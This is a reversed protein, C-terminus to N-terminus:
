KCDEGKYGIFAIAAYSPQKFPHDEIDFLLPAVVTIAFFVKTLGTTGMSDLCLQSNAREM